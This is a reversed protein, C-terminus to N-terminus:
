FVVRVVQSSLTEIEGEFRKLGAVCISLQETLALLEKKLGEVEALSSDRKNFKKTLEDRISASIKQSKKVQNELEKMANQRHSKMDKEAEKLRKLDDTAKANTSKM